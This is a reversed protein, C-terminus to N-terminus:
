AICAAPQRRGSPTALLRPPRNLRRCNRRNRTGRKRKSVHWYLHLACFIRLVGVATGSHHWVSPSVSRAIDGLTGSFGAAADDLAHARCLALLLFRLHVPHSQKGSFIQRFFGICGFIMLWYYLVMCASAILHSIIVPKLNGQGLQTFVQVNRSELYGVGLLLVPIAVVFSLWWYRGVDADFTEQGYCLAGFGFCICYYFVKLPWAAPRYTDPGFSQWM